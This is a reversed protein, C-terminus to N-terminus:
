GLIPWGTHTPLGARELVARGCRAADAVIADEGRVAGNRVVHEGDIFVHIARGTTTHHVVANAVNYIPRLVDFVAVDARKGVELSGILRSAGFARAGALTLWELAREPLLRSRDRHMDGFLGCALGATQLFSLGHPSDTGFAVNRMEPHRGVRSIGSALHLNGAPCVAVTAGSTNLVELEADSVYLAHTVVAREDLVGLEGLHVIPDKGTTARYFDGDGPNPSMHFGWQSDRERACAAAALWLDDSCATHGILTPWVTVRDSPAALELAVHMRELAAQTDSAFEPPDNWRDATWTGIAGRLRLERLGDLIIEPFRLTGAEVFTTIGQKLMQLAVYRASAREDEPTNRIHTPIAWRALHQSVPSDAPELGPFLDMGTLHVHANILGPLAVAQELDVRQEVQWTKALEHTPGIDVIAGDRVVISGDAFVRRQPDMTVLLGHDLALDANLL